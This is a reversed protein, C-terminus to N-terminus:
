TNSYSGYYIVEGAFFVREEVDEAMADYDDGSSGVAAYSYAMQAFHDAGWKSVVSWLPDPIQEQPFMQRLNEVCKQIIEKDSKKQYAVLGDGSVTAMLISVPNLTNLTIPSFPLGQFLDEGNLMPSLDYFVTFMESKDQSNAIRAFQDANKM